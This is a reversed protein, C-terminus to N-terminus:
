RMFWHPGFIPLIYLVLVSWIGGENRGDLRDESHLLYLGSVKGHYRVEEEENLSLQGLAGTLDEEGSESSYPYALSDDRQHQGLGKGIASRSRRLDPGPQEEHSRRPSSYEFGSQPPAFTASPPASSAQGSYYLDSDDIRRKLRRGPSRSDDRAPMADRYQHSTVQNSPASGLISPLSLGSRPQTSVELMGPGPRKPSDRALLSLMNTVRDQWENSPSSQSLDYSLLNTPSAFTVGKPVYQASSLDAKDDSKSLDSTLHRTKPPGAKEDGAKRGKM